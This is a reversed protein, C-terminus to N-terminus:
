TLQEYPAHTSDRALSGHDARMAGSYGADRYAELVERIPLSGHGHATEHFSRDGTRAIDRTHAFHIRGRNGFRRVMGVLDNDVRAGLSGTCLCIGNAPSDSLSLLRNLAAEDVMIRKLGLVDWPPDDPHLALRIGLEEARPAAQDLFRALADFLQPAGIGRYRAVQESLTTAGGSPVWGPLPRPRCLASEERSQDYALTTSGDPLVKRLDTRFWDLVLMWNYVVVQFGAQALNELSQLWIATDRDAGAGDVKQADTVPLSEIIEAALGATELEDRLRLCRERPWVEGAPIDYLSSVAVEVPPIQAVHRLNDGPFTRWAWRLQTTM